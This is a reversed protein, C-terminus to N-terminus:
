YRQPFVLGLNKGRIPGEEKKVGGVDGLAGWVVFQRALFPPKEKGWFLFFGTGGKKYFLLTEQRGPLIKTLFGKVLGVRLLGQNGPLGIWTGGGFNGSKSGRCNGLFLSFGPKIGGL